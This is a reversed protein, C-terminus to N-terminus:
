DERPGRGRAAVVAALDAIAAAISDFGSAIQEAAMLLDAARLAEVSTPMRTARAADIAEAQEAIERALWVQHERSQDSVIEAVENEDMM